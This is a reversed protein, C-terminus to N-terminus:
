ADPGREIMTSRATAVLAGQDDRVETVFTLFGAGGRVRVSEVRAQATLTEGEVLPREYAYEQSGHLVRGFDLALTPDGLVQPFVVFEVTTMFTPPIGGAQGFVARFAAVREPEVTIDTAPYVTGEAEPNMAASDRM